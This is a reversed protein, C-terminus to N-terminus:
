NETQKKIKTEAKTESEIDQTKAHTDADDQIRPTSVHKKSLMTVREAM